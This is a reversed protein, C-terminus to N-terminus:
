CMASWYSEGKRIFKAIVESQNQVGRVYRLRLDRKIEGRLEINYGAYRSLSWWPVQTEDPRYQPRSAAGWLSRSYVVKSLM